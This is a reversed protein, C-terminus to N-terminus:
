RCGYLLVYTVIVVVVSSIVVAIMLTRAVLSSQVLQRVRRSMHEVALKMVSSKALVIRAGFYDQELGIPATFSNLVVSVIEERCVPQVSSNRM